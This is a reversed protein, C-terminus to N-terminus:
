ERRIIKGPRAGTEADNEWVIEGGVWVAKVGTSYQVPDEFTGHDSITAPDFVVLDAINGEKILGRNSFGLTNASLSTMKRIAESLSLVGQDRVYRALVRSFAGQGRPHRDDIGGDSTIGSYPWTIFNEIDGENINRGIISQQLNNKAANQLLDMLMDVPEVGAEISIEELTKGTYEPRGEYNSFIIMSPVSLSELAYEAAERDYYDRSPILVALTSQWGDYPYIDATIDLGEARAANLKDLIATSMGHKETMAVKIHSINVSINAERAITVAEDFAANVSIDESRIHSSYKGGAASAVKALEVVEETNSYVAPEYEIGTSFGLAGADLDAQLLVKMQEIEDNTANRTFDDGLVASRYNNHPGFYAMNVAPPNQEIHAMNDAISIYDMNFKGASGDLGSVFTTIGQALLSPAAPQEIILRDHHSHPDIFGPSLVLGAADWVNEGELASLEGFAAILGNDIRVSGEIADGGSGDYIVANTILTSTPVSINEQQESCSALLILGACIFTLNGLKKIMKNEKSKLETPKLQIVM